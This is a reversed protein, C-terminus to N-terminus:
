QKRLDSFEKDLEYRKSTVYQEMDQIRDAIDNLREKARRIRTKSSKQYRFLKKKRYRRHQEDYEYAFNDEVSDKRPALVIWAILYVWFMLTASILFAAIFIIRMLSHDIEFHDALGACVGGIYKEEKNRYLNLGFGNRRDASFGGYNHRKM